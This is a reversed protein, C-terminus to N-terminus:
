DSNKGVLLFKVIGHAMGAALELKVGVVFGNMALQHAEVGQGALGGGGQTLVFLTDAEQGGEICTKRLM